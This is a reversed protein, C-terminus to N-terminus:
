AEVLDLRKKILRIGAEMRLLREDQSALLKLIGSQSGAFGDMRQKMEDIDSRIARLHELVLNIPEDNAM